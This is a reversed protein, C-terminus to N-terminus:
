ETYILTLILLKLPVRVILKISRANAVLSVKALEYYIRVNETRTGFM